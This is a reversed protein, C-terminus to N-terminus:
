VPHEALWREAELAAMCGTGAATVAQRYTPDQVDGCAFVGPVNTKTTGAHVLLYGAPNMELKGVFLETAPKHGIAIFVGQASLLKKDGSKVNRVVVGTVEQKAPDQIEDVASDWLFTLNPTGFARDQMAKCGRLSDRRHVVTVTKCLKALYTAEELATDGGGVVVVDKGRFLPGDCTACASVGGVKRLETESPIDLWKASAGTAVIVTAADHRTDGVWVGFPRASFDVKTVFETMIEAGQKVAQDRFLEMMKPGDVGDPFGPYNFVDTTLMLQGGWQEGEIVLPKMNARAAYIAATYGAPGSGIILTERHTM